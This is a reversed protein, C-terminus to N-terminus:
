SFIKSFGIIPGPDRKTKEILKPSIKEQLVYTGLNNDNVIVNLFKVDLNILDEKALAKM